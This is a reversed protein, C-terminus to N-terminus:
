NSKIKLRDLMNNKLVSFVTRGITTNITKEFIYINFFYIIIGIIGKIILRYLVNGIPIYIVYVLIGMLISSLVAVAIFKILDLCVFYQYTYLAQVTFVTIETILTGIAAGISGLKPILVINIIINIVAGLVCSLVFVKDLENPLLVQTRIVNAMAIFLTSPLLIYFLFICKDYRPGYYFPVFEDMIAMMGIMIPVSILVALALSMQIIKRLEEKNVKGTLNAMRPLMVTGFATIICLPLSILKDTSEYFGVEVTGSMIGLMIKDMIRYFSIAITPIFLIMNPKIHITINSFKVKSYDVFRFIFTWLLVQNVLISSAMIITYAIIDVESKVFIFISIISIIKVIANRLVILKFQELGQFFWTIDIGASIVYLIMIWYVSRNEKLIIGAFIYAIISILATMVQMIYIHWFTQSLETKNDRVKAIIRNGYNNLGMMTFIVFYNATAYTYAYIGVGEPQLVRSVYPTVVLPTIITLLQYFINYMFNRKVSLIKNTM